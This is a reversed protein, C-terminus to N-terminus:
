RDMQVAEELSLVYVSGQPIQVVRTSEDRRGSVMGVLNGLMGGRDFADPDGGNFFGFGSAVIRGMTAGEDAARDNARTHVVTTGPIVPSAARIPVIQGGIVISQAVIKAGGDEPQLLISVPSNEPVLINGQPDAIAQSLPVTLPYPDGGADMSVPAVFSVIIGTTAPITAATQRSSLVPATLASSTTVQAASEEPTSQAIAPLSPTGIIAISACLSALSLISNKM